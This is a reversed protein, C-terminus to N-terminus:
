EHSKQKVVEEIIEGLLLERIDLLLLKQGIYTDANFAPDRDDREKECHSMRIELFGKLIHMEERTVFLDDLLDMSKSEFGRQIIATLKVFLQVQAMPAFDTVKMGMFLLQAGAIFQLLAFSSFALVFSMHQKVMKYNTKTESSVVTIGGQPINIFEPHVM